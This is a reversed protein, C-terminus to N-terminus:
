KSRHNYVQASIRTREITKICVQRGILFSYEGLGHYLIIYNMLIAAMCFFLYIQTLSPCKLGFFLNMTMPFQEVLIALCM